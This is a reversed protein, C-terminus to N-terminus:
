DWLADWLRLAARGGPLKELVARDEVFLLLSTKNTWDFQIRSLWSQERVGEGAKGTEFMWFQSDTLRYRLALTESEWLNGIGHVCVMEGHALTLLTKLKESADTRSPKAGREPDRRTITLEDNLRRFVQVIQSMRAMNAQAADFQRRMRAERACPREKPQPSADELRKLIVMGDGDHTLPTNQLINLAFSLGGIAFWETGGDWRDGDERVVHLRLGSLLRHLGNEVELARTRSPFLAQFSNEMAINEVDPLSKARSGPSRSIGIKFRPEDRHVLLYVHCKEAQRTALPGDEIVRRSRRTCVSGRTEGETHWSMRSKSMMKYM